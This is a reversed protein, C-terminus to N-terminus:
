YVQEMELTTQITQLFEGAKLQLYGNPDNRMMENLCAILQARNEEFRYQQEDLLAQQAWQAVEYDGCAPAFDLEDMKIM